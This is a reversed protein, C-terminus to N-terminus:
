SRCPECRELGADLAGTGGGSAVVAASIQVTISVTARTSVVLCFCGAEPAAVDNDRVLKLLRSRTTSPTSSDPALRCGRAEVVVDAITSKAM